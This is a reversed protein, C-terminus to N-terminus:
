ENKQLFPRLDSVVFIIYSFIKGLIIRGISISRLKPDFDRGQRAEERRSHIRANKLRRNILRIIRLYAAEVSRLQM